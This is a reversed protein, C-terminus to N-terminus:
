HFSVVVDNGRTEKSTGFFTTNTSISYQGFFSSFTEHFLKINESIIFVINTNLPDSLFNFLQEFRFTSIELLFRKTDDIFYHASSFEVTEHLDNTILIFLLPGIVSGQPLDYKLYKKRSQCKNVSTFQMRHNLYLHFWNNRIGGIRYYEPKKLLIDHNM